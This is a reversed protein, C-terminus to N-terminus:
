GRKSAIFNTAPVDLQDSLWDRLWRSDLGQWFDQGGSGDRRLIHCFISLPFFFPDWRVPWEFLIIGAYVGLAFVLVGFRRMSMTLRCGFGLFPVAIAVRLPHSSLSHQTEGVNWPGRAMSLFKDNVFSCRLCHKNTPYPVLSCVKLNMLSSMMGDNRVFDIQLLWGTASWEPRVHKRRVSTKATKHNKM